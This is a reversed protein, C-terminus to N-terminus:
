DGSKFTIAFFPVPEANFSTKFDGRKPSNVGVMDFSKKSSLFMQQIAHLLLASNAGTHRFAPDTAGFLYYSCRPDSATVIASVAKGAFSRAVLIQGLGTELVARVNRFVMALQSDDPAIGQRSFTLEYLNIFENVDNSLEIQLGAKKAKRADQRRATRISSLFDEFSSFRDLYIVGTYLLSVEYVGKEPTHYNCWQFGRLDTISPHLCISHQPYRRSLSNALRSIIKLRKSVVSHGNGALPALAIGQYLSYPYPAYLVSNVSKVILASAAIQGDVEYFFRDYEADMGALYGSLSFVNCQPSALIFADWESDSNCDILRTADSNEQSSECMNLKKKDPLITIGFLDRTRMPAIFNLSVFEADWTSRAVAAM